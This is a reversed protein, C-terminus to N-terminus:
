VWSNLLIINLIITITNIIIIIAITINTITRNPM